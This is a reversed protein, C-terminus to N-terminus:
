DKLIEIKAKSFKAIWLWNCFQRTVLITRLFPIADVGLQKLMREDKLIENDALAPALFQVLFVNCFDPLYESAACLCFQEGGTSPGIINMEALKNWGYRNAMAAYAVVFFCLESFFSPSVFRYVFILFLAFVQNCNFSKNNLFDPLQADLTRLFDDGCAAQLAKTTEVLEQFIKDYVAENAFIHIPFRNVINKPDFDPDAPVAEPIMQLFLRFDKSFESLKQSFPSAAQAVFDDRKPRGQKKKNATQSGKQMVGGHKTKTHTYLAAYSFYSKGCGCSWARESQDDKTRRDRKKTFSSQEEATIGRLSTQRHNNADFIRVLQDEPRHM